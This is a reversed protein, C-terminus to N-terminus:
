ALSAPRGYKLAVDYYTNINDLGVVDDGREVATQGRGCRHVRGRRYCIDEDYAQFSHNM